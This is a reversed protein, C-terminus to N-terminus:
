WIKLKRSKRWIGGIRKAQKKNKIPIGYLHLM